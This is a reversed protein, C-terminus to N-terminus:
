GILSCSRPEIFDQFVDILQVVSTIVHNMAILQAQNRKELILTSIWEVVQRYNLHGKVYIPAHIQM